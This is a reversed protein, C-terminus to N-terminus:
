KSYLKEVEGIKNVRREHRGGGFNTSLWVNV